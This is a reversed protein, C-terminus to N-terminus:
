IGSAHNLRNTAASGRGSEMLSHLRLPPDLVQASQFPAILWAAV